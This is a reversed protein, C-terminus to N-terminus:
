KIIELTVNCEACLTVFALFEIRDLLVILAVDLRNAWANQRDDDQPTTQISFALDRAIVLLDETALRYYARFVDNVSPM